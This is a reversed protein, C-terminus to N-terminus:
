IVGEERFQAIQETSYGLSALIEDNHEGVLPPNLRITGPTESFQIPIGIVKVEGAVPHQVTQILENHAVQPDNMLDDFDQVKACWM